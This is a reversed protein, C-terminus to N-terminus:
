YFSPYLMFVCKADLTKSDLEFAAVPLILDYFVWRIAIQNICETRELGKCLVERLLLEVKDTWRDIM